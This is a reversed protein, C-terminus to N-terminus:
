PRVGLGLHGCVQCWRGMVEGGTVSGRAALGATPMAFVPRGATLAVEVLGGAGCAMCTPERATTPQGTAAQPGAPGSPPAAPLPDVGQVGSIVVHETWTTGDHYRQDNRGSPDPYWGAATADM